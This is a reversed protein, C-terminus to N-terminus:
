SQPYSLFGTLTNIIAMAAAKQGCIHLPSTIGDCANELTKIKLYM